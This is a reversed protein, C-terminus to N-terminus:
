GKKEAMGKLNSLGKEYDPGLMDELFLGMWRGIPNNGMDGDFGWTVKTGKETKELIFNATAQGQDGFDLATTVSENQVAATIEQTGVGVDSNGEWSMKAGVGEAPGEWEYKANPDKDAWPSWEHFTKLNAILPYVVEPPADIEISREVHVERPLAFAVLCLVVILGVLGGVVYKVVKM